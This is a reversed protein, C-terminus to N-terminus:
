LRRARLHEAVSWAQFPCGTAGHPADGDATESISGLGYEGLHAEADALLDPSPQVGLRHWATSTRAPSGRGSPAPTTRRTGSPRRAATGDTTAPSAPRWAARGSRPSCRPASRRHLAAPDPRLPAYPLSWALLQNPRLRPTPRRRATSWTTSCAPRAGPVAPRLRGPGAPRARVAPGAAGPRGSCSRVTALGNIWLANM